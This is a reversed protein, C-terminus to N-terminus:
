SLSIAEKWRIGNPLNANSFEIHIVRRNKNNETRKSSHLLLPNMILIGGKSVECIYESGIKEKTWEKLNIVGNVHSETIVHLAGNEKNCDDLHIRITYIKQLTELDPQVITRDGKTRWNKFGKTKVENKVNITIDQHWSVVWNAKPPKNFYISKISTNCNPLIKKVLSLLKSNFVKKAVNPNNFLFEREGFKDSSLNKNIIKIIANIEDETYFDEIIEFGKEVLQKTM